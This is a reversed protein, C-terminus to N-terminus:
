VCKPPNWPVKMFHMSHAVVLVNFGPSEVKFFILIKYKNPILLYKEQFVEPICKTNWFFYPLFFFYINNFWYKFVLFYVM